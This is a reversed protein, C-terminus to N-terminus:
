SFHSQLAKLDEPTLGVTQGEEDPEGVFVVTGCAEDYKYGKRCLDFNYPLNELKGEENCYFTVFLGSDTELDHSEIYGGVIKQYYDLDPNQELMVVELREGPKKIALLM